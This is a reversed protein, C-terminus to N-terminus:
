RVRRRISLNGRAAGRRAMPRYGSSANTAGSFVFSDYHFGSNEGAGDRGGDQESRASEGHGSGAACVKRPLVGAQDGLDSITTAMAVPPRRVAAANTSAFQTVPRAMLRAPWGNADRALEVSRSRAIMAEGLM